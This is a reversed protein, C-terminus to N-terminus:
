EANSTMNEAPTITSTGISNAVTENDGTFAYNQQADNLIVNGTNTTVIDGTQGREGSGCGALLTLACISSVMVHRKV